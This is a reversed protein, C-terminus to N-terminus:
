NSKKLREFWGEAVLKDLPAHDRFYDPGMYQKPVSRKMAVEKMATDIGKDPVYPISKFLPAYANVLKKARGVDFRFVKAYVNAAYAQNIKILQIGETYAKMVREVTDKAKAVYSRSSIVCSAPYVFDTKSLDVLVPWNRDLFPLGTGFSMASAVITGAELASAVETGLQLVTVDKEPDLGGYRLAARLQLHTTSGLSTVGVRKGKLESMSKIEPRAILYVPAGDAPCALLVVDGGEIRAGIVSEPGDAGFEMQGSMVSITNIVGRGTLIIEATIGHKSFLSSEKAVWIPLGAPSSTVGWRVQRREQPWVASTSLSTFLLALSIISVVICKRETV